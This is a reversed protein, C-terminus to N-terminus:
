IFLKILALLVSLVIGGLLMWLKSDLNRVKEKVDRLAGEIGELRAEIRAVRQSLELFLPDDKLKRGM